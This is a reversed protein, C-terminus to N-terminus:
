AGKLMEPYKLNFCFDTPLTKNSYTYMIPLIKEPWYDALKFGNVTSQRVNFMLFHNFAPLFSSGTSALEDTVVVTTIGVNPGIAVVLNYEDINRSDPKILVGRLKHFEMYIYFSNTFSKVTVQEFEKGMGMIAGMYAKMMLYYGQMSRDELPGIKFINQSRPEQLAKLFFKVRREMSPSLAGFECEELIQQEMPNLNPLPLDTDVYTSLDVQLILTRMLITQIMKLYDGALENSETTKTITYGLKRVKDNTDRTPSSVNIAVKRKKSIEELNSLMIALMNYRHETDPSVMMFNAKDADDYESRPMISTSYLRIPSKNIFAPEGLYIRSLDSHQACTERFEKKTLQAEEDFFSLDDIQYGKAVMDWSDALHKFVQELSRSQKLQVSPLFPSVTQVNDKPDGKSPNLNITLRGKKGFNVAGGTNGIIKESVDLQCGLAARTNINKMADSSMESVVQQSALILRVGAARGLATIGVVYHDIESQKRRANLYMARCEDLVVVMMPMNLKTIKNYDDINKANVVAFLAQRREMEKYAFALLSITFQADATAAVVNVHPMRFPVTAYPKFELIKPDNLYFQAVWPGCVMMASVIIDNLTVSKGQGTAGGLLMHPSNDDLAGLYPKTKNFDILGFGHLPLDMASESCWMNLKGYKLKEKYPRLDIIKAPEFNGKILEDFGRPVRVFDPVQKDKYVPALYDMYEDFYLYNSKASQEKIFNRQLEVEQKPITIV